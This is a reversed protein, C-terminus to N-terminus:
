SLSPATNLIHLCHEIDAYLICKQLTQHLGSYRLGKGAWSRAKKSVVSHKTIKKYSNTLPSFVDSVLRISISTLLGKTTKIHGLDTPYPSHMGIESLMETLLRTYSLISLVLEAPRAPGTSTQGRSNKTWVATWYRMIVLVLDAVNFCARVAAWQSNIGRRMFQGPPRQRGASSHHKTGYSTISVLSSRQHCHLLLGQCNQDTSLSTQATLLDTHPSLFPQLCTCSFPNM